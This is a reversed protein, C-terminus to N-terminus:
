YAVLERMYDLNTGYGWGANPIADPWRTNTLRNNLDALVHDPVAVTYPSIEM